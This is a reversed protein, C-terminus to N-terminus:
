PLLVMRWGGLVKTISVWTECLVWRSMAQVKFNSSEEEGKRKDFDGGNESLLSLLSVQM